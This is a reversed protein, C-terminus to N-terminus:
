FRVALYLNHTEYEGKIGSFKPDETAFYRYGVDLGVQHVDFALGVIGQYAFVNDDDNLFGSDLDINAMGLGVGVFPRFQLMDFDLYGNLMGSMAEVEGGGIGDIDNTRYAAEGELRFLEFQKGVAAFAGWGNDFSQGDADRLDVWMGGVSFYPKAMASTAVLLLAMSIFIIKRAM